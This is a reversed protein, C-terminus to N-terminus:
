PTRVVQILLHQRHWHNLKRRFVCRYDNERMVGLEYGAEALGQAAAKQYWYFAKQKDQELGEGYYYRQGLYLQALHFGQEAAKQYWYAAKAKDQAIGIGDKYFAGLAAQAVAHGQEAAKRFWYVAETQSAHMGKGQSLFSGVRAAKGRHSCFRLPFRVSRRCAEFELLNFCNAAFQPLNAWNKM